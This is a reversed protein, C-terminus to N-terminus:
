TFTLHRAVGVFWVLFKLSRMEERGGCVGEHKQRQTHHHHHNSCEMRVGGTGGEFSDFIMAWHIAFFLLRKILNM